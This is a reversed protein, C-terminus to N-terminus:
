NMYKAFVDNYYSVRNEEAFRAVHAQTIFPLFNELVLLEDKEQYTLDEDDLIQDLLLARDTYHVFAWEPDYAMPGHEARFEACIIAMQEPELLDVDVSRDVLGYYPVLPPNPESAVAPLMLMPKPASLMLM